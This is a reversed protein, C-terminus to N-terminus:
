TKLSRKIEVLEAMVKEGQRRVWRQHLFLGLHWDEFEEFREPETM